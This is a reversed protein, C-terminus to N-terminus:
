SFPVKVSICWEDAIHKEKIVQKGVPEIEGKVIWFNTKGINWFLFSLMNDEPFFYKGTMSMFSVITLNIGPKQKKKNASDNSTKGFTALSVSHM